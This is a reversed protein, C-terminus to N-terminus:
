RKPETKGIGISWSSYPTNEAIWKSFDEEGIRSSALILQRGAIDVLIAGLRGGVTCFTGDTDEGQPNMFLIYENGIEVTNDNAMQLLHIVKPVKGSFVESIRVTAKLVDPTYQTIGSVTGRVVCGASEALDQFDTVGSYTFDDWKFGDRMSELTSIPVDETSLDNGNQGPNWSESISVVTVSEAPSTSEASQVPLRPLESYDPLVPIGAHAALLIVAAATAIIGAYPIIQCVALGKWGRKEKEAAKELREDETVFEEIYEGNLSTLANLWLNM